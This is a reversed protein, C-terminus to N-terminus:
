IWFNWELLGDFRISDFDSFFFCCWDGHIGVPSKKTSCFRNSFIDNWIMEKPRKGPNVQVHWGGCWLVSLEVKQGTWVNGIIPLEACTNGALGLLERRLFHVYVISVIYIGLYNTIYFIYIYTCIILVNPFKYRYVSVHFIIINPLSEKKFDDGINMWTALSVHRSGHSPHKCGHHWPAM